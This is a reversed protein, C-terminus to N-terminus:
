VKLSLKRLCFLILILTTQRETRIEVMSSLHNYKSAYQLQCGRKELTFTLNHLLYLMCLPCCGWLDCLGFLCYVPPLIYSDVMLTWTPYPCRVWHILCKEGTHRPETSDGPTFKQGSPSIDTDLMFLRTSPNMKEWKLIIKKTVTKGM